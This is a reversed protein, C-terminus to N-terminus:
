HRSGPVITEGRELMAVLAAIKRARGAATKMANTRFALAPRLELGGDVGVGSRPGCINTPHEGPKGLQAAPLASPIFGLPQETLRFPRSAELATALRGIVTIGIDREGDIGELNLLKRPKPTLHLASGIQDLTTVRISGPFCRAHCESDRTRHHLCM